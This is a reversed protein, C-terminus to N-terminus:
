ERRREYIKLVYREGQKNVSVRFRKGYASISAKGTLHLIRLLNEVYQVVRTAVAALVTTNVETLAASLVKWDKFEVVGRLGAEKKLLRVSGRKLVNGELRWGKLLKFYIIQEVYWRRLNNPIFTFESLPVISRNHTLEVIKAKWEHWYRNRVEVKEKLFLLIREAEKLLTVLRAKVELSEGKQAVLQELEDLNVSNLWEYEEDLKLKTNYKEVLDKIENVTNKLTRLRVMNAVKEKKEFFLSPIAVKFVKAMGYLMAAELLVYFLVASLASFAVVVFEDWRQLHEVIVAQTLPPQKSFQPSLLFAVILLVPAMVLVARYFNVGHFSSKIFRTIIVHVPENNTFSFMLFSLARALFLVFLMVAIAVGISVGLGVYFGLRYFVAYFPAVTNTLASSLLSVRHKQEVKPSMFSLQTILSPYTLSYTFFRTDHPSLFVSYSISSFSKNYHSSPLPEFSVTDLRLEPPLRDAIVAKFPFQSSSYVKELVVYTYEKKDKKYEGLMKLLTKLPLENYRIPSCVNFGYQDQIPNARVHAVLVLIDKVEEAVRKANLPNVSLTSVMDKAESVKRRLAFSDDSFRKIWFGVEDASDSLQACRETMCGAFCSSADDCTISFTEGLGLNQRCARESSIVSNEFASLLEYMRKVDSSPYYTKFKVPILEAKNLYVYVVRQFVVNKDEWKVPGYVLVVTELDPENDFNYTFSFHTHEKSENFVEYEYTSVCGHFLFLLSILFLGVVSRKRM